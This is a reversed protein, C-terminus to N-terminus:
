KEAKPSLVVSMVRGEMYVDKEVSAIETTDTVFRELVTKGKDRFSMERGQFFLNVKVKDKKNLFGITQKLKTQYDHEDIHPKVRIQKLSSVKQNKKVRREKKEQDYKYKSFDMIRCVPPNATPAVEVLDLGYEEALELARQTTVVGLQEAEPGIVRLEKARIKQNIRIHKLIHVV